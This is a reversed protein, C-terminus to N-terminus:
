GCSGLQRAANGQMLSVDQIAKNQASHCMFFMQGALRNQSTRRKDQKPYPKSKGM